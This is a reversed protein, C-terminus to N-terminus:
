PLEDRAFHRNRRWYPRKPRITNPNMDPAFLRIPADLNALNARQRTIRRELEQIHGSLEARKLKLASFVHLEAM